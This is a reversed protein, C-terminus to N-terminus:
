SNTLSGSSTSFCCQGLGLSTLLPPLKPKCLQLEAPPLSGIKRALTTREELTLNKNFLSFPILEETLYWTHRCLVTSTASSIKKNIKSFKQLRKFLKLYNEAAGLLSPSCFWSEVYPKVFMQLVHIDGVCSLARSTVVLCLCHSMENAMAWSVRLNPGVVDMSVICISFVDEVFVAEGANNSISKLCFPEQCWFFFVQRSNCIISPRQLRLVKKFKSFSGLECM